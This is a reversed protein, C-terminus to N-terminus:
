CRSFQPIVAALPIIGLSSRGEEISQCGGQGLMDLDLQTQRLGNHDSM